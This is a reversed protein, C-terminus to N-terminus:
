GNKKSRHKSTRRKDFYLCSLAICMFALNLILFIIEGRSIFTGILIITQMFIATNGITQLKNM